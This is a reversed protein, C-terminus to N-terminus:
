IWLVRSGDSPVFEGLNEPALLGSRNDILVFDNGSGQMKVFPVPNM